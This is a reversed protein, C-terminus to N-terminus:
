VIRKLEGYNDIIYNKSELNIIATIAIHAQMGSKEILTDKDLPSSLLDLIIKEEKSINDWLITNILKSEDTKIKLLHLIDSGCTVPHAGDKMLSLTGRSTASFISGPVIAVEKNYELALRATIQTGSKDQAEVILVLDSIAAMLRNRAPFFYIQSKDEYNYESVLLGNKELIENALKVNTAPYLIDPSLGSGPFSITPLNNRLAGKHANSDTGLALGSVIIIKQNALEKTLFTVVEQGYTSARRSGVICLFKYDKDNLLSVNGIMNLSKPCDPIELLKALHFYNKFNEKPITIQNELVPRVGQGRESPSPSFGTVNEIETSM